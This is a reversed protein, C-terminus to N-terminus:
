QLSKNERYKAILRVTLEELMNENRINQINIGDDTMVAEKVELEEVSIYDKKLDCQSLLVYKKGNDNLEEVIYYQTGNDLEVIRDKM